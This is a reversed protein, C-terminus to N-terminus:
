MGIPSGSPRYNPPIGSVDRGNPRSSVAITV